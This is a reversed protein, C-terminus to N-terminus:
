VDPLPALDPEIFIARARMGSLGEKSYYRLALSRDLLEPCRSLLEASSQAGSRRRADSVLM